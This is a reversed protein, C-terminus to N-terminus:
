KNIIKKLIDGAIKPNARGKSKAMIKGVLFQSTAENGGRFDNAAKENEKIVEIAWKKLEDEDSVQNLGKKQLIHSPDAGKRFMEVLIDKAARSSVKEDYIMSILEAFNEPTILIDGIDASKEKIIGTLDTLLYNAALKMLKKKDEETIKKGLEKEWELLETAVEEFYEALNKDSIFIEVDQDPLLYEEKFRKRKDWPLEPLGAKIKELDIFNKDSLDIPMIDPEPFYRYDFAEEKSRQAFTEKKNEDWGRTEQSIVGGEDLLKDQRIVEYDVADEVAKFSNLNKIEVKTGFTGDTNKLSINVECRMEGKDMNADSVDLYRLLLRLEECFLRAEGSSTIVPETVLEMLPVGARNYDVLSYNAGDPHILKGTDEELHIRTIEISRGGVELSGGVCFPLDYQSIQYGKPLDPYFYNKRDFKSIVPHSSGVAAGTKLVSVIAVKNAFPLTGPHGLCIPCINVNPHKEASDNPCNCFMKTETKLEAHIELGIVPIRKGKMM